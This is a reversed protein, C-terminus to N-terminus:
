GSAVGRQRQPPAVMDHRVDMADVGAETNQRRCGTPTAM